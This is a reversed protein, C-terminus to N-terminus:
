FRAVRELDRCSDYVHRCSSRCYLKRQSPWQFLCAALRAQEMITASHRPLDFRRRALERNMNKPASRKDRVCGEVWCSVISTPSMGLWTTRTKSIREV